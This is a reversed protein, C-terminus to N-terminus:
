LHCGAMRPTRPEHNEVIEAETGVLELHRRRKYAEWRGEQVLVGTMSTLDVRFGAQVNGDYVRM